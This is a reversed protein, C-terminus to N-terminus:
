MEAGNAGGFYFFPGPGRPDEAQQEGGRHSRTPLRRPFPKQLYRGMLRAGTIIVYLFVYMWLWVDTEHNIFSLEPQPPAMKTLIHLKTAIFVGPNEKKVTVQSFRRRGQLTEKKKFQEFVNQSMVEQMGSPDPSPHWEGGAEGLRQTEAGQQQEQRTEEAQGESCPELWCESSM